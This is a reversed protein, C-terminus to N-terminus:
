DNIREVTYVEEYEGIKVIVRIDGGINMWHGEQHREAMHRVLRTCAEYKGKAEGIAYGNAKIIWSHM